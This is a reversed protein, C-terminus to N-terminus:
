HNVAPGKKQIRVESQTLADRDLRGERDATLLADMITFYQDPDYSVLILDVGANLAAVSAQPLGDNSSHVARMSFDDTILLGQYAWNRRLLGSVVAQSFSVPRRADIASLRVHSLITVASDTMLTRFPIWDSRELDSLAAKLDASEVHTDEFVRGIGPFHKLTCQVAAQQLGACYEGAIETVIAPDASIARNRIRTYRDNPNVVEYNLDIV